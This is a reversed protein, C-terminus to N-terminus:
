EEDDDKGKWLDLFRLDDEIEKIPPYNPKGVYSSKSKIYPSGIKLEVDILEERLKEITDNLAKTIVQEVEYQTACHIGRVKGKRIPIIMDVSITKISYGDGVKLERSFWSSKNKTM